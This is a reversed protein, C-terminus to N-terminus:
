LGEHPNTVYTTAKEPAPTIPEYGRMPIRLETMNKIVVETAKRM